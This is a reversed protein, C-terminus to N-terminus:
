EESSGWFLSGLFSIMLGRSLMLYTSPPGKSVALADNVSEFQDKPRPVTRRDVRPGFNSARHRISVFERDKM